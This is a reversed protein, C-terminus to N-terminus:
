IVIKSINNLYYIEFYIYKTAKRNNKINFDNGLNETKSFFYFHEKKIFNIFLHKNVFINSVM